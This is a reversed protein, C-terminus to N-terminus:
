RGPGPEPFAKISLLAAGQLLLAHPQRDRNIAGRSADNAHAKGVRWSNGVGDRHHLHNLAILGDIGAHGSRLCRPVVPTPYHARDSIAAVHTGVKTCRQGIGVGRKFKRLSAIRGHTADHLAHEAGNRDLKHGAELALGEAIDELPGIVIRRGVGPERDILKGPNEHGPDHVDVVVSGVFAQAPHRGIFTPILNEIDM